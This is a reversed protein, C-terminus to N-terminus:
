NVQIAFDKLQGVIMKRAFSWKHVGELESYTHEVDLSDLKESFARNNHVFFDSSGCILHLTFDLKRLNISDLMYYPSHKKWDNLHLAQSGFVESLNGLHPFEVLNSGGSVSGVYTFMEPHKFALYVSGYGGMSFGTIGTKEKARHIKYNKRVYPMLESIIFTEYKWNQKRPSDMYWGKESNICVAVIKLKDVLDVLGPISDLFVDANNGYNHLLYMVPFSDVENYSKPVIVTFPMEKNFFFSSVENYEVQQESWIGYNTDNVETDESACGLLVFSFLVWIIRLQM